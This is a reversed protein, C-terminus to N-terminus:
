RRAGTFLQKSCLSGRSFELDHVEMRDPRLSYIHKKRLGSVLGAEEHASHDGQMQQAQAEVCERLIREIEKNIRFANFSGSFNPATSLFQEQQSESYGALCSVLLYKAVNANLSPIWDMMEYLSGLQSESTAGSSGGARRCRGASLM